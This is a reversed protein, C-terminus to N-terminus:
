PWGCTPSVRMQECAGVAGQESIQLVSRGEKRGVREREGVATMGHSGHSLLAIGM